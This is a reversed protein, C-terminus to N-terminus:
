SRSAEYISAISADLTADFDIDSQGHSLGESLARSFSAIMGNNRALRDNAQTRGYGGSLAVVRLVRPDAILSQYFNPEDPLTLKLMVQQGAPIMDLNFLIKERLLAEAEAKDPCAISVEPEIIPVLGAELIELGVVFQQDVVDHIGVVVSDHILSRMKTGFVGLEKAKALLDSLGPNAVMRQAGNEIEELGKDVKVFPVVNKKTWLYEAAPVGDVDQHLTMEFLIAGLVRENFSDSMMMRSRMQHILVFMEAESDYQDDTIGYTSLARPTSGGSQDLAAIFGSGTEIRSRQEDHM